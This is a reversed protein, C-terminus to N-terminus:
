RARKLIWPIDGDQDPTLTLTDGDCRYSGRDFFPDIDVANGTGDGVYRGIPTNDFPRAQVPETLDVTLRTENWNLDGVPQWSGTAGASGTASAAPGTNIQGTATGAYTFRGRVDAGAVKATFTVPQMGTFDVTTAGTGGIRVAIGSGGTLDANVSSNGADASLATTRWDGVVCAAVAGGGSAPASTPSTPGSSPANGDACGALALGLGAAAVVATAGHHKRRM